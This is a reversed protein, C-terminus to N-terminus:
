EVSAFTAEGNRVILFQLGAPGTVFGYPQNAAVITMDREKMPQGDFVCSGELVMFIEAHNHSHAPADFNPPIRVIQAYFGSDGQALFKRGAGKEGAAKAAEPDTGESVPVHWDIEDFRYIRRPVTENTTM